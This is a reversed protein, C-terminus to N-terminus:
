RALIENGQYIVREVLGKLTQNLFPTNISKSKMFDRSFTTTVGPNFVIFEAVGGEAV